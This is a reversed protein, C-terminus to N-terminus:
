LYALMNNCHHINSMGVGTKLQVAKQEWNWIECHDIKDEEDIGDGGDDDDGHDGDFLPHICFLPLPTRNNQNVSGTPSKEKEITMTMTM